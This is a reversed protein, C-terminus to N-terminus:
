FSLHYKHHSQTRQYCYRRYIHNVTTYQPRNRHSLIQHENNVRLLLFKNKIRTFSAIMWVCIARKISKIMNFYHAIFEIFDSNVSNERWKALGGHQWFFLNEYFFTHFSLVIYINQFVHNSNEQVRGNNCPVSKPAAAVVLRSGHLWM